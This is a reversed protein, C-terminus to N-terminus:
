VMVGGDAYWQDNEEDYLINAVSLLAEVDINTLPIIGDINGADVPLDLIQQETLASPFGGPTVGDHIRLIKGDLDITISGDAGVFVDNEEKTGRLFRITAM